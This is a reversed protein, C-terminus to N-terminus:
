EATEAEPEPTPAPAPAQAAPASGDSQVPGTNVIINRKESYIIAKASTPFVLLVDGKQSGNFFPQTSVLLDPDDIKLVIPKEDPVLMLKSVKQVLQVVEQEARKTKEAPSNYFQWFAFAGGAIVLAMIVGIIIKLKPSRKTKPKSPTATDEELSASESM